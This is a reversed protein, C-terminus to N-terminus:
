LLVLAIPVKDIEIIGEPKVIGAKLAISVAKKGIINFTSDEESGHEIIELVEKENKKEGQFFNPNVFVCKKGEEFTKGIIESDCVAIIDRYSHHIKVFM